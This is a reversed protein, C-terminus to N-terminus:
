DCSSDGSLARWPSRLLPHVIHKGQLLLAPKLSECDSGSTVTLLPPFEDPLLHGASRGWRAEYSRRADGPRHHKQPDVVCQVDNTNTRHLVSLVDGPKFLPKSQQARAKWTQHISSFVLRVKKWPGRLAVSVPTQFPCAYSTTRAIVIVVYLLTGLGTIDILVYAITNLSYTHQCLSCALFLSVHLMVSLREVFLRLRWKELSDRKRQRDECLEVASGSSSWSYRNLWQKGSMAIFATLLSILLSAYILGTATIIKSPPNSQALVVSLM